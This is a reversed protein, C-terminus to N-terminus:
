LYVLSGTVRQTGLWYLLYGIQMMNKKKRRTTIILAYLQILPQKFVHLLIKEQIIYKSRLLMVTDLILNFLYNYILTAM